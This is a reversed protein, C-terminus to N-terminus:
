EQSNEIAEEGVYVSASKCNELVTEGDNQRVESEKGNGVGSIRINEYTDESNELLLEYEGNKETQVKVENIDREDCVSFTASDGSTVVSASAYVNVMKAELQEVEDSENIVTYTEDSPLCLVTNDGFSDALYIGDGLTVAEGNEVSVVTKGSSDTISVTDSNVFLMNSDAYQETKGRNKWVTPLIDSTSYYLRGNASQSSFVRNGGSTYTWSIVNKKEDTIFVVSKDEQKCNPDYVNIIIHNQDPRYLYYAVVAHGDNNDNLSLVVPVGTFRVMNVKDFLGQYDNKTSKNKLVDPHWQAIHMIEIFKTLNIGLSGCDGAGLDFVRTASANFSQPTIGSTRLNMMISTASMGYCYGGWNPSAKMWKDYSDKALQTNGYLSVFSSYPISYNENIGFSSHSNYFSFSFDTVYLNTKWSSYTTIKVAPSYQGYVTQGYATKYARIKYYYTKANEVKTDNYSSVSPNTIKAISQFGSSSNKSRYLIYGTANSATNWYVTVNNLKENTSAWPKSMDPAKVAKLTKVSLVDSMKSYYYKDKGAPSFARVAYKYTTNAKLNSIKYSTSSTKGLYEYKKTSSNYSYVKYYVSNGASKSWKLQLSNPTVSVSKLNKVSAPTGYPQATIIKSKNSYYTKKGVTKYAAVAYSYKQSSKLSSVSLSTDKLKKLTKYKKTQTDYSYIVYGSVGSVKGWKLTLKNKGKSVSFSPVSKPVISFQLTKSGSYTSGKFKVSVSYTGYNKRGKAYSVTYNSSSIKKGASDKVTVSPKKVKGDYAYKTASLTVSSVRSIKKTQKSSCSKCTCVMLGDEKLTAKKSVKWDSYSHVHNLKYRVKVQQAASDRNKVWGSEKQFNYYDVKVRDQYACTKYWYYSRKGHWGFSGDCTIGAECYAPTGDYYYLAYFKYNPNDYDQRSWAEYVNDKSLSDFHSYYGYLEYNVVDGGRRDCYHYYNYNILVRTDSTPLEINSYYIDGTNEFASYAFGTNKWGAGPSTKAVTKYINYYEISYKSATVGAPLSDAYTWGDGAAAYMPVFNRTTNSSIDLTKEASPLENHVDAGFAGTCLSFLMTLMLLSFCLGRKLLKM